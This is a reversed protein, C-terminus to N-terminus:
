CTPVARLVTRLQDATIGHSQMLDSLSEGNLLGNVVPVLHPHGMKMLSARVHEIRSKSAVVEEPSPTSPNYLDRTRGEGNLTSTPTVECIPNATQVVKWSSGKQVERSTKASRSSRLSADVGWRRLETCASQYAWVRLVSMQIKSGKSLFPALTDKEVLRTLFTQVHDDVVGLDQSRPLKQGLAYRLAPIVASGNESLWQATLNTQRVEPADSVCNQVAKALPSNCGAFSQTAMDETLVERAALCLPSSGVFPNSSNIMPPTTELPYERSDTVRPTASSKQVPNLTDLSLASQLSLNSFDDANPPKYTEAILSM